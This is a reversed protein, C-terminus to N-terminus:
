LASAWERRRIDGGGRVKYKHRKVDHSVGSKMGEDQVIATVEVVESTRARM